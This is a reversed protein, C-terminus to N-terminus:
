RPRIEMATIFKGFALVLTGKGKLGIAAGGCLSGPITGTQTFKVGLAAAVASASAFEGIFKRYDIVPGQFGCANIFRELQGAGSPRCARPVGALVLGFAARIRESGGLRQVLAAPVEPDNAALAYFAPFISVDAATPDSSLLLAGGGASPVDGMRVSEDLLPSLSAHYEDAGIVLARRSERRNLLCAATLAQEFSYDGGSTTVNAGTAGLMIAAQGAAANHVSGVFDTPSPFREGTEFLSKLFGNTESLAGWGTGFFIASPPEKAGSRRHAEAALAMVLRPLYRLRRVQRADLHATIESEPAV